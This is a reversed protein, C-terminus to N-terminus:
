NAVSALAAEWAALNAISGTRLLWAHMLLCHSEDVYANWFRWTMPQLSGWTICTVTNADYAACVVSHGGWSGPQSDPDTSPNGVVDWVSGIQSQATIPLQLGINIMGFQAIAQKNHVIDNPSPDAYAYLIPRHRHLGGHSAPDKHGIGNRRVYNLVDIIVGGQDTSPDGPVYGCSKEYLELIANDPPTVEGTPTNLTAVQEAHGPAACTCDGLTDNLMSGFSTVDGYWNASAPPTVRDILDKLQFTRPDIRPPLKGLKLNSVDIAM